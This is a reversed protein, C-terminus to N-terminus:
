PGGVFPHSSVPEFNGNNTKSIVARLESQSVEHSRWSMQLIDALSVLYSWMRVLIFNIILADFHNELSLEM